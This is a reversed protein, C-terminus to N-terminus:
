ILKKNKLDNIQISLSDIVSIKNSQLSMWRLFCMIVGDGLFENSDFKTIDMNFVPIPTFKDNDPKHIYPTTILFPIDDSITDNKKLGNIPKFDIPFSGYIQQSERDSKKYEDCIIDVFEGTEVRSELKVNDKIKNENTNCLDDEIVMDDKAKYDILKEKMSSEFNDCGKKDTTVKGNGVKNDVDMDVTDNMIDDKISTASTECKM